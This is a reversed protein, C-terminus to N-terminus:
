KNRKYFPIRKKFDRAYEPIKNTTKICNQFNSTQALVGMKSVVAELM